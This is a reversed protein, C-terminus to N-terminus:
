RRVCTASRYDLYDPKQLPRAKMSMVGGNKVCMQERASYEEQAINLRDAREFRQDETLPACGWVLGMFLVHTSMRVVDNRM